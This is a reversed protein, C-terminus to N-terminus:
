TQYAEYDLVMSNLKDFAGVGDDKFREELRAVKFLEQLIPKKSMNRPAQSDTFWTSLADFTVAELKDVNVKLARIAPHQKHQPEVIM